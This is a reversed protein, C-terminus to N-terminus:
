FLKKGKILRDCKVALNFFGKKVKEAFSVALEKIGMALFYPPMLILALLLQGTSPILASLLGCGVAGAASGLPAFASFPNEAVKSTIRKAVQNSLAINLVCLWVIFVSFKM